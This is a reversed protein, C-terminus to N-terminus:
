KATLKDIHGNFIFGFSVDREVTHINHHRIQKKHDWQLVYLLLCIVPSYLHFDYCTLFILGM